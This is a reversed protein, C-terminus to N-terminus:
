FFLDHFDLMEGYNIQVNKSGVIAQLTLDKVISAFSYQFKVGFIDFVMISEQSHGGQMNALVISDSLNNYNKSFWLNLFFFEMSVITHWWKFTTAFTFNALFSWNNIM